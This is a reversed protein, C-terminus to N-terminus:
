VGSIVADVAAVLDNAHLRVQGQATGLDEDTASVQL